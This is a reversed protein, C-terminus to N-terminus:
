KKIRSSLSFNQLKVHSDTELINSIKSNSSKTDIMNFSEGSRTFFVNEHEKSISFPSESLNACTSNLYSLSSSKLSLSLKEETLIQEKSDRREELSVKNELNDDSFIDLTQELKEKSSSNNDKNDKNDKDDVGGSVSNGADKWLSTASKIINRLANVTTLLRQQELSMRPSTQKSQEM